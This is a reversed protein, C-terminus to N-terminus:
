KPPPAADKSPVSPNPPTEVPAQIGPAVAVGPSDPVVTGPAGQTAAREGANDIAKVAADPASQASAATAAAFSLVALSVATPFRM